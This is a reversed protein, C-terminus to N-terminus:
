SSFATREPRNATKFFRCDRQNIRRRGGTRTNSQNIEGLGDPAILLCALNVELTDYKRLETPLVIRYLMLSNPLGTLRNTGALRMWRHNDEELKKIRDQLQAITVSPDEEAM